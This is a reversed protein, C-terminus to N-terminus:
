APEETDAGDEAEPADEIGTGDETEPADEVGAGDEAESEDEILETSILAFPLRMSSANRSIWM